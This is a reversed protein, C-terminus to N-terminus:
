LESNISKEACEAMFASTVQIKELQMQSPTAMFMCVAELSEPIVSIIKSDPKATTGPDFYSITLDM